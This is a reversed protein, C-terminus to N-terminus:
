SGQPRKRCDYVRYVVNEFGIRCGNLVRAMHARLAPNHTESWGVVYDLDERRLAMVAAKKGNRFGLVQDYLFPDSYSFRFEPPAFVVGPERLERLASVAPLYDRRYPNRYALGTVLICAMAVFAYVFAQGYARRSPSADFTSVGYAALVAFWPTVHIGYQAWKTNDIIALTLMAVCAAILCSKLGPMKALNRRSFVALAAAPLLVCGYMKAFQFPWVASNFTIGYTWLYRQFEWLLGALGARRYGANVAMQARFAVPDYSIWLAFCALAFVGAAALAAFHWVKWTRRRAVFRVLWVAAWVAANPHTFFAASLCLGVALCCRIPASEYYREHVYLALLGLCHAMMDPRGWTAANLYPWDFAILIAALTAIERSGSWLRVLLFWLAIGAAAFFANLLRQQRLGWSFVKYWAAQVMAYLPMQYYNRRDVGTLQGDMPSISAIERSDWTHYTLFNHAALTYEGEDRYATRTWITVVVLALWIVSLVWLRAIAPRSLAGPPGHDLM